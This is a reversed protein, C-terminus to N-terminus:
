DLNQGIISSTYKMQPRGPDPQAMGRRKYISTEGSLGDALRGFDLEGDTQRKIWVREEEKAALDLHVTTILISLTCLTHRRSELLDHLQAVHPQVSSLHRDYMVADGSSLNLEKLRRALEEQAM